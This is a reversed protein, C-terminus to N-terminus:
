RAPTLTCPGGSKTQARVEENGDVIVRDASKFFTVTKGTSVRCGDNVSVPVANAGSIVYRADLSFYTLRAGTAVRADVRANVNIYAELREARSGQQALVVEIRDARLTGQPGVVQAQVAPAVTVGRGAGRGATPTLLPTVPPTVPVAVPPTVALAPAAAAGGLRAMPPLAPPMNSLYSIVRTTDEYRIEAASGISIGNDLPISSRAQGAAVLDGTSQDITILDARIATDGQWLQANGKYIAKAAGGEYQLADASVNASQEDKLLGPMKSTGGARLSTKVLGMAEMRRSELAVDIQKQAEITIQRDAVRPPGGADTGTLRLTGAGPEYRAEAGSARLGQDEFTVSGSFLASGIADGNLTIGLTRARAVRPAVRSAAGGAGEERYEVSDSFRASTLGKGSEGVADLLVATVSRASAGETAPMQLVVHGKGAAHTVAGDPALELNLTDGAMQRGSAGNQGAMAVTANGSLVVHELTKGDETYALDIDRATMGELAGGGGEVSASGRLEIFTVADEDPTLRANAARAVFREEGRLVHVEGGLTLSDQIRDIVASGSNFDLVVADTDDTMKVRAHEALSLVDNAQDYTMGVGAGNMRGKEFTIEGPARVISDAQDFSAHEAHLEFGDSAQLKVDGSLQLAQRNQGAEAEKAVLVFDRGERGRVTIAVGFLKSAGDKYFLQRESTIDFDRRVGSEQKVQAGVGEITATPDMREPAAVAVVKERTGIARYVLVAGAIGVIAVVIRARKQWRM